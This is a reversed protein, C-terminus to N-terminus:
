NFSMIVSTMREPVVLKKFVIWRASRSVSDFSKTPDVFTVFLDKDHGEREVRTAKFQCDHGCISLRLSM